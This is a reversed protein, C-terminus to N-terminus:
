ADPRGPIAVTGRLLTSADTHLGQVWDRRDVISTPFGGRIKLSTAESGGAEPLGEWWLIAPGNNDGFGDQESELDGLARLLAAPGSTAEIM